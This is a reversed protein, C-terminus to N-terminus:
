AEGHTKVEFLELSKLVRNIAAMSGEVTFFGLTQLAESGSFYLDTLDKACDRMIASLLGKTVVYARLQTKMDPKYFLAIQRDPRVTCKIVRKAPLMKSEGTVLSLQEVTM